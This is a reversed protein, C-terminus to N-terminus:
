RAHLINELLEFLPASLSAEAAAFVADHGLVLTALQRRALADLEEEVM